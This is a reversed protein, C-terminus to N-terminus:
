APDAMLRTVQPTFPDDDSDTILEGTLELMHGTATVLWRHGARWLDAQYMWGFTAHIIAARGVEWGARTYRAALQEGVQSLGTM